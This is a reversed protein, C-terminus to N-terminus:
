GNCRVRGLRRRYLRYASAEVLGVRIQYVPRLHSDRRISGGLQRNTPLGSTLRLPEPDFKAINAKALVHREGVEFALVGLRFFRLLM